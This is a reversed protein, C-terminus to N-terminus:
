LEILTTKVEKYNEHQEPTLCAITSRAKANLLPLLHAAWTNEPNQKQQLSTWTSKPGEMSKMKPIAKAREQEAMRKQREEEKEKQEM